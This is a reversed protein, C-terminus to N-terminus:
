IGLKGSNMKIQNFLIRGTVYGTYQYVQYIDSATLVRNYVRIDDEQGNFFEIATGPPDSSGIHFSATDTSIGGSNGSATAFLVGNVYLQTPSSSITACIHEWNSVPPSYTFQAIGSTGSTYVQFNGPNTMGYNIGYAYPAGLSDDRKAMVSRYGAGAIADFQYVWGCMTVANTGINLSSSNAVQVYQSSGQSLSVSSVGVKGPNVWTAGGELIGTNANGSSDVASTGTGEDLKWWGVLGTTIDAQATSCIFLLLIFILKKM